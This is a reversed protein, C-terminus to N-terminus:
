RATASATDVERRRLRSLDLLMGADRLPSGCWSHGGARVAVRPGRSRALKVAQPVDRESAAQVIVDPYREPKLENWLARAWANAYRADGREILAGEIGPPQTHERM